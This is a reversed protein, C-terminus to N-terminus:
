QGTRGRRPITPASPLRETQNCIPSFDNAHGLSTGGGGRNKRRKKGPRIVGCLGMTRITHIETTGGNHAFELYASGDFYHAALSVEM